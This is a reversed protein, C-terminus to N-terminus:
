FNNRFFPVVLGMSVNVRRSSLRRKEVETELSSLPGNDIFSLLSGIQWHVSGNLDSTKLLFKLQVALLIGRVGTQYIKYFDSSNENCFLLLPQLAM